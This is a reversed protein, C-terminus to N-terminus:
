RIKILFYIFDIIARITEGGYPFKRPSGGGSLELEGGFQVNQPCGGGSVGLEGGFQL